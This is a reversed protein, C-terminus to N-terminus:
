VENNLGKDGETDGEVLYGCFRGEPDWKRRVEMLRKGEEVNWLRTTRRTLDIDNMYAGLSRGKMGEIVDKCHAECAADGSEDKCITYLALYHESHLSLAMGLSHPRPMHFWFSVSEPSPISTLAPKLLAILETTSLSPSPFASDVVYRHDPPNLRNQIAYQDTMTSAQNFTHPHPDPPCTTEFPLLAEHADAANSKFTTLITALCSEPAGAPQFIAFILETDPDNRPALQPRTLQLRRHLSCPPTVELVWAFVTEYASVPYVYISSHIAQPVPRTQLVFRTVVGPFGPGCGRAAWYLETNQTADARLLDGSATVADIAVIQECAWGWNKPVTHAYRRSQLSSPSVGANWGVGGGLLFGGLAVSPCHGGAFWRGKPFLFNNLEASEISPSVTALGTTEDFSMEHLNELDVLVSNDRVSSAAWNHGGSRVAVRCGKEAALRVAEVVHSKETAKVVALPFRDVSRQNWVRGIRAHEYEDDSRWIITAKAM